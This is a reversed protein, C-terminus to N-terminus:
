KHAASLLHEIGCASVCLTKMETSQPSWHAVLISIEFEACLFESVCVCKDLKYAFKFYTVKPVENGYEWRWTCEHHNKKRREDWKTTGNWMIRFVKVQNIRALRAACVWKQYSVWISTSTCTNVRYTFIHAFISNIVWAEFILLFSFLVSYLLFRCFSLFCFLYWFASTCEFCWPIAYVCMAFEIFVLLCICYLVYMCVFSWFFSRAFSRVFSRFIHNRHVNFMPILISTYCRKFMSM